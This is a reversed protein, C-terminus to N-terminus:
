SMLRPSSLLQLTTLFTHMTYKSSDGQFGILKITIRNEHALDNGDMERDNARSLTHNEDENLPNM